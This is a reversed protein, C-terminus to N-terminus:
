ALREPAAALVMQQLYEDATLQEPETACIFLYDYHVNLFLLMEYCILEFLQTTQPPDYDNVTCIYRYCLQREKNVRVTGFLAMASLEHLRSVTQKPLPAPLDQFVIFEVSLLQVPTDPTPLDTDLTVTGFVKQNPEEPNLPLMFALGNPITEIRDCEPQLSAHIKALIDRTDSM